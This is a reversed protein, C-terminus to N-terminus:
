RAQALIEDVISTQGAGQDLGEDLGAAEIGVLFGVRNKEQPPFAFGNYTSFQPPRGGPFPM